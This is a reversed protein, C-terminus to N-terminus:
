KTISALFEEKEAPSMAAFLAMPDIKKSEKKPVGSKKPAVVTYKEANAIKRDYIDFPGKVKMLQMHAHEYALKAEGYNQLAESVKPELIARKRKWVELRIADKERETRAM